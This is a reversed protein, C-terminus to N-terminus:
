EVHLEWVWTSEGPESRARGRLFPTPERVGYSPSLWGDEVTLEVGPPAVLEVEVGGMSTTCRGAELKPEGGALTFTWM